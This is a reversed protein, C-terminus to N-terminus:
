GLDQNIETLALHRRSRCDLNGEWAGGRKHRHRDGQVLQAPETKGGDSAQVVVNYTNDTGADGPSEFNPSAKFTLVGEQSIDFLARDAIDADSVDDASDDVGDAPSTDTFIGLDQDGGADQLLSWVIPTVKEPDRATLTLM